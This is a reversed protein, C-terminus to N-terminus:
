TPNGYPKKCKMCLKNKLVFRKRSSGFFMKSYKSKNAEKTTCEFCLIKDGVVYAVVRNKDM